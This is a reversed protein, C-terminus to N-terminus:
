QSAGATKTGAEIEKCVSNWDALASDKLEPFSGYTKTVKNETAAADGAGGPPAPPEVAPHEESKLAKAHSEQIKILQHEADIIRKDNNTSELKLQIVNGPIAVIGKAIELPISSVELLESTKHVCVNRLHGEDFVLTTRRAAFFTRDVGVSVIPQTNEITHTSIQALQWKAKQHPRPNTFMLVRYPVRPRYFVGRGLEKPAKVPKGEFSEATPKIHGLASQPDNCYDTISHRHTDFTLGEVVICYGARALAANVVASQVRNTPDWEGEFVIARTEVADAAGRAGRALSLEIVKFAAGALSKIIYGSQDVAESSMFKLLHNDTLKVNFKEDATSSALYDLCYGHDRDARRQVKFDALVNKIEAGKTVRDVRVRFNTKSLYYAGGSSSCGLGSREYPRGILSSQAMSCGALGAGALLALVVPRM